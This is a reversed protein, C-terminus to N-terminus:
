PHEEAEAADPPGPWAGGEPAERQWPELEAPPLVSPRPLQGPPPQPDEPRTRERPPFEQEGPRDPSMVDAGPDGPGPAQEAPAGYPEGIDTQAGASLPVLATLAAAAAWRAHRRFM